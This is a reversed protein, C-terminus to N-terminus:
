DFGDLICADNSSARLMALPIPLGLVYSLVLLARAFGPKRYALPFKRFIAMASLKGPNRIEEVTSQYLAALLRSDTPAQPTSLFDLISNAIMGKVGRVYGYDFVDATAGLTLSRATIHMGHNISPSALLRTLLPLDPCYSTQGLRYAMRYHQETPDMSNLGEASQRQTGASVDDVSDGESGSQMEGADLENFCFSLFTPLIPLVYPRVAIREWIDQIGEQQVLVALDERLYDEQVRGSQGAISAVSVSKRGAGHVGAPANGGGGSGPGIGSATGLLSSLPPVPSQLSRRRSRSHGRSPTDRALMPGAIHGPLAHPLPLAPADAVHQPESFGFFLLLRLHKNEELIEADSAGFLSEALVAVPQPHQLTATPLPATFTNLPPQTPFRLEPFCDPYLKQPKLIELTPRNPTGPTGPISPYPSVAPSPSANSASAFPHPSEPPVITTGAPILPPILEEVQETIPVRLVYAESRQVQQRVADQQRWHDYLARTAVAPEIEWPVPVKVAGVGSQWQGFTLYGYKYLAAHAQPLSITGMGTSKGRGAKYNSYSLSRAVSRTRRSRRSRSRRSPAHSPSSSGGAGRNSGTVSGGNTGIFRSHPSQADDLVSAPNSGFSPGENSSLYSPFGEREQYKSSLQRVHMSESICALIQATVPRKKLRAYLFSRTLRRTANLDWLYMCRSPRISSSSQPPQPSGAHDQSSPSSTSTTSPPDLYLVTAHATVIHELDTNTAHLLSLPIHLPQQKAPLPLSSTPSSRPSASRSRPPSHPNQAAITEGRRGAAGGSMRNEAGTGVSMNMSGSTMYMDQRKAKEPDGYKYKNQQQLTIRSGKDPVPDGIPVSLSMQTKNGFARISPDPHNHPYVYAYQYNSTLEQKPPINYKRNFQNDTTTSSQTDVDVLVHAYAIARQLLNVAQSLQLAEVPIEVGLNELDNGRKGGKRSGSGKRSSRASGGGASDVAGSRSTRLMYHLQAQQEKQRRALASAAAAYVHQEWLYRLCVLIATYGLTSCGSGATVYPLDELLASLPCLRATDPNEAFSAGPLPTAEIQRLVNAVSPPMPLPYPPAVPVLAAGHSQSPGSATLPTSVVGTHLYNQADTTFHDAPPPLASAGAADAEMRQQLAARTGLVLTHSQTKRVPLLSQMHKRVYVPLADQIRLRLLQLAKYAHDLTLFPIAETLGDTWTTMGMDNPTNLTGHSRVSPLVVSDSARVSGPQALASANAMPRLSKEPWVLTQALYKTVAENYATGRKRQTRLQQTYRLRNVLTRQNYEGGYITLMTQSVGYADTGHESESYHSAADPDLPFGPSHHNEQDTDEGFSDHSHYDNHDHNGHHNGYVPDYEYDFGPTVLEPLQNGNGNGDATVALLSHKLSYRALSRYLNITEDMYPEAENEEDVKSLANKNKKLLQASKRKMGRPQSESGQGKGGAGHGHSNVVDEPPIYKRLSRFLPGFPVIVNDMPRFFFDGLVLYPLPIPLLLPDQHAVRTFRQTHVPNNRKKGGAGVNSVLSETFPNTNVLTLQLGENRYLPSSSSEVPKADATRHGHLQMYADVGGISYILSPDQVAPHQSSAGAGGKASKTAVAADRTRSKKTLFKAAARTANAAKARQVLSQSFDPLTPLVQFSTADELPLPDHSSDQVTPDISDSIVKYTVPPIYTHHDAFESEPGHANYQRSGHGDRQGHLHDQLHSDSYQQPNRHGDSYHVGMEHPLRPVESVDKPVSEPISSAPSPPGEDIPAAVPIEKAYLTSPPYTLGGFSHTPPMGYLMTHYDELSPLDDPNGFEGTSYDYSLTNNANQAQHAMYQFRRERAVLARYSVPDAVATVMSKIKGVVRMIENSYSHAVAQISSQDWQFVRDLSRQMKDEVQYIMYVIRLLEHWTSKIFQVASYSIAPATYNLHTSPAPISAAAYPSDAQDRQTTPQVPMGFTPTGITGGQGVLHPTAPQHHPTSHPNWAHFASQSVSHSMSHSMSHSVPSATPYPSLLLERISHLTRLLAPRAATLLLAQLTDPLQQVPSPVPLVQDDHLMSLVVERSLPVSNNPSVSTSVSPIASNNSTPPAPNYPNEPSEPFYYPSKWNVPVEESLKDLSSFAVEKPPTFWRNLCAKAKVEEMPPTKESSLTFQHQRASTSAAAAGGSGFGTSAPGSTPSLTYPSLLSDLSASSENNISATVDPLTAPPAPGRPSNSFAEASEHSFLSRIVEPIDFTLGKDVHFPSSVTSFVNKNLYSMTGATGELLLSLTLVASEARHLANQVLASAQVHLADQSEKQWASTHWHISFRQATECTRHIHDWLNLACRDLDMCVEAAEEVTVAKDAAELMALKEVIRILDTTVLGRHTMFIKGDNRKPVKADSKEGDNTEKGEQKMTPEKFESDRRTKMTGGMKKEAVGNAGDGSNESRLKVGAVSRWHAVTDRTVEFAARVPHVSSFEYPDPLMPPSTEPVDPLTALTSQIMSRESPTLENRLLKVFMRGYERTSLRFLTQYHQMDKLLQMATDTYISEAHLYTQVHSEISPIDLQVGRQLALYLEVMGPTITHKTQKHSLVASSPLHPRAIFNQPGANEDSGQMQSWDRNLGVGQMEDFELGFDSDMAVDMDDSIGGDVNDRSASATATEGAEVGLIKGVVRLEESVVSGPAAEGAEQALLFPTHLTVPVARCRERLMQEVALDFSGFVRLLELVPLPSSCPSSIADKGQTEAPSELPSDAPAPPGSLLYPFEAHLLPLIKRAQLVTSGVCALDQLYEIQEVLPVSNGTYIGSGFYGHSHFYVHGSGAAATNTRLASTDKLGINSGIQAAGTVQGNSCANFAQELASSSLLARSSPADSGVNAAIGAPITSAATPTLAAPTGHGIPTSLAIPLSTSPTNSMAQAQATPVFSSIHVSAAPPPTPRVSLALAPLSSVLGLLQEPATALRVSFLSPAGPAGPVTAAGGAGRKAGAAAGARVGAAAGPAMTNKRQLAGAAGKGTPIDKSMASVSDSASARNPPAIDPLVLLDTGPPLPLGTVLDYYTDPAPQPGQPSPPHHPSAQSPTPPLGGLSPTRPSGYAPPLSLKSVLRPPPAGLANQLPTALPHPPPPSQVGPQLARAAKAPGSPDTAAKPLLLPTPAQAMDPTGSAPFYSLNWPGLSATPAASFFGTHAAATHSFSAALDESEELALCIDIASTHLPPPPLALKSFQKYKGVGIGVGIGVSDESDSLTNMLASSPSSSRASSRGSSKSSTGGSAKSGAKATSKSSDASAKSGSGAAGARGARSNSAAGTTPALPPAAATKKPKAFAGEKRTFYSQKSVEGLFSPRQAEPITEYEKLIAQLVKQTETKWAEYSDKRFAPPLSWAGSVLSLLVPELLVGDWQTPAYASPAPPSPTYVITWGDPLTASTSSHGNPPAPGTTNPMWTQHGYLMPGKLAYELAVQHLPSTPMDVLLLGNIGEQVRLEKALMLEPSFATDQVLSRPTMGPTLSPPLTAFSAPFYEAFYARKFANSLQETVDVASSSQMPTPSSATSDLKENVHLLMHLPLSSLGAEKRKRQMLGTYRTVAVALCNAFLPTHQLQSVVSVVAVGSFSPTSGKKPSPELWGSGTSGPVPTAAAGLMPSSAANAGNFEGKPPKPLGFDLLHWPHIAPLVNTAAAAANPVPSAGQTGSNSYTQTTAQRPSAVSDPVGTLHRTVATSVTHIDNRLRALAESYYSLFTNAGLFVKEKEKGGSDPAFFPAAVGPPLCVGSTLADPDPPSDPAISPGAVSTGPVTATSATNSVPVTTFSTSSLSLPDTLRYHTSREYLIPLLDALGQLEAVTKPDALARPDLAAAGSSPRSLPTSPLVNEKPDKSRADLAIGASLGATTAGTTSGPVNAEMTQKTAQLLDHVFACVHSVITAGMAYLTSSQLDALPSPAPYNHFAPLLPHSPFEAEELDSFEDDMKGDEDGEDGKMEERNEREMAKRLMDPTPWVPAYVGDAPEQEKGWLEARLSRFVPLSLAGKAPLARALPGLYRDPTIHSDEPLQVQPASAASGTSKVSSPRNTKSSTPSAKTTSPSTTSTKAVTKKSSPSTKTAPEQATQPLTLAIHEPLTDTLRTAHYLELLQKTDKWLFSNQRDFEYIALALVKVPSLITLQYRAALRSAVTKLRKQILFHLSPHMSEPGDRVSPPPLSFLTVTVPHPLICPPPPPLVSVLAPATEVTVPLTLLPNSITIPNSDPSLAADSPSSVGGSSPSTLKAPEDWQLLSLLSNVLSNRASIADPRLDSVKGSTMLASTLAVAAGGRHQFLDQKSELMKFVVNNSSLEIAPALHLAKKQKMFRAFHRFMQMYQLLAHGKPSPPPLQWSPSPLPWSGDKASAAVRLKGIQAANADWIRRLEDRVLQPLAWTGSGSLYDRFDAQDLYALLMPDGIAHVPRGGLDTEPSPHVGSPTHRQGDLLVRTHTGAIRNGFLLHSPPTRPALTRLLRVLPDTDPLYPPLRVPPPPPPPPVAGLPSPANSSGAYYPSASDLDWRDRMEHEVGEEGEKGDGQFSEGRGEEAKHSIKVEPPYLNTRLSVPETYQLERSTNALSTQYRSVRDAGAVFAQRILEWEHPLLLASGRHQRAVQRAEATFLATEVLSMLVDTAVSQAQERLRAAEAAKGGRPSEGGHGSANGHEAEAAATSARMKRKAEQDRRVTEWYEREEPIRERYEAERRAEWEAIEERVQMERLEKARTERSHLSERDRLDAAQAQLAKFEPGGMAADAVALRESPTRTSKAEHAKREILTNREAQVRARLGAVYSQMAAKGNVFHTATSAVLRDMYDLVPERVNETNALIEDFIEAEADSGGPFGDTSRPTRGTHQLGIFQGLEQQEQKNRIQRTRISQLSSNVTTHLPPPIENFQVTKGLADKGFSRASPLARMAGDGDSSTGADNRRKEQDILNDILHATRSLTQNDLSPVLTDFVNHLTDLTRGQRESSNVTQHIHEKSLLGAASKKGNASSAIAHSGSATSKLLGGTSLSAAGPFSKTVITPDPNPLEYPYVNLPHYAKSVVQHDGGTDALERKLEREMRHLTSRLADHELEAFKSSPAWAENDASGSVGAHGAGLAGNGSGQSYQQYVAGVRNKATTAGSESASAAGSVNESGARRRAADAAAASQTQKALLIHKQTEFTSVGQRVDVTADVRENHAAILRNQMETLEWALDTRASTDMRVSELRHLAKDFEVTLDHNQRSSALKARRKQREAEIAAQRQLTDQLEKEEAEHLLKQSHMEFNALRLEFSAQKSSLGSSVLKRAYESGRDTNAKRTRSLIRSPVMGKPPSVIRVKRGEFIEKLSALLRISEGQHETCISDITHQTIPLGLSALYHQLTSFNALKAVTTDTDTFQNLFNEPISTPDIKKAINEVVQAFIYGNALQQELSVDNKLKSKTNLETNVFRILQPETRKM